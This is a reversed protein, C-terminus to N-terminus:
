LWPRGGNTQINNARAAEGAKVVGAYGSAATGIVNLGGGILAAQGESAAAEAEMLSSEAANQYGAAKLEANYTTMNLNKADQEAQALFTDLNTGSTALMGAAGTKALLASRAARMAKDQESRQYEGQKLAIDSNQKAIQANYKAAQERAKASNTAAIASVGGGAVAAAAAISAIVTMCM